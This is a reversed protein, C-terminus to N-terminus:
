LGCGEEHAKRASVDKFEGLCYECTRIERQVAELEEKQLAGDSDCVDCIKFAVTGVALSFRDVLEYKKLSMGCLTVGEKGPLPIHYQKTTLSLVWQEEEVQSMMATREWEERTMMRLDTRVVEEVVWPGEQKVWREKIKDQVSAAIAAQDHRVRDLHRNSDLHRSMFGLGMGDDPFSGCTPCVHEPKM